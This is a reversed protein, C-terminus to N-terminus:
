LKMVFLVAYSQNRVDIDDGSGTNAMTIGTVENQTTIGTFADDVTVGSPSAAATMVPATDNTTLSTNGTDIEGAYDGGILGSGVSPYFPGTGSNFDTDFVGNPTITHHHDNITHTHSGGSLVHTHGPDDTPHSHGPDTIDHDHGPDTLTHAHAPLQGVTLNITDSGQVDNVDYEGGSQVLVRDILNPTTIFGSGDAKKQKKGDAIAWNEWRDSGLGTDADFLDIDDQNQLALIPHGETFPKLASSLSDITSQLEAMQNLLAQNGNSPCCCPTKHCTCKSM